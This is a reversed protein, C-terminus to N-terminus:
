ENVAEDLRKMLLSIFSLYEKAKEPDKLDQISHSKPNKIGLFAGMYLFRFGEREDIQEQDDGDVIKIIPNEKNFVFNALNVGIKDRVKSKAKLEKELIKVAEFIAQSYHKDHFLKQSAKIIKPHLKMEKPLTTKKITSNTVTLKDSYGVLIDIIRGIHELMKDYDKTRLTEPRKLIRSKTSYNKELYEICSNMEDHLPEFIDFNSDNEDIIRHCKKLIPLLVPHEGRGKVQMELVEEIKSDSKMLDIYDFLEQLDCVVGMLDSVSIKKM